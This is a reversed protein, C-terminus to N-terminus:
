GVPAQGSISKARGYSYLVDDASFTNGACSKADDRLKMTWTNSAADFSWSTALAGAIKSYDFTQVGEDNPPNVQYTVLTDLLNLMGEQSPPYTGSPGDSDLSAPVGDAVVFLTEEAQAAPALGLLALMGLVLRRLPRTM